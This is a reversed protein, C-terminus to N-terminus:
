AGRNRGADKSLIDEFIYPVKRDETQVHVVHKAVYNYLEINHRLRLELFLCLAVISVMVQAWVTGFFGLRRAYPAITANLDGWGMALLLVVISAISLAVFTRALKSWDNLRAIKDEWPKTNKALTKAVDYFKKDPYIQGRAGSEGYNAGFVADAAADRAEKLDKGKWHFLKQREPRYLRDYVVEDM